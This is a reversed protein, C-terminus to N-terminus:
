TYSCASVYLKPNPHIYLLLQEANASILPFSIIHIYIEKYLIMWAKRKNNVNNQEKLLKPYM